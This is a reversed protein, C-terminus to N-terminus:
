DKLRSYHIGRDKALATDTQGFILEGRREYGWGNEMAEAFIMRSNQIVFRNAEQRDNTELIISGNKWVTIEKTHSVVRRKKAELRARLSEELLENYADEDLKGVVQGRSNIRNTRWKQVM